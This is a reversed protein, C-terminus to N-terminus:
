RTRGGLADDVVALLERPTFPKQLFACAVHSARDRDSTSGTASSAVIAVDRTAERDRLDQALDLGDADDLVVDVFVLDPVSVRLREFAESASGAGVVRYGASSLVEVTLDRIEPDNEVVLVTGSRADGASSMEVM